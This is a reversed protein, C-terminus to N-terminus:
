PPPSRLFPLQPIRTKLFEMLSRAAVTPYLNPATIMFLTDGWVDVTHEPLVRVLSGDGLEQHVAYFPLVGLGLGALVAHKLFLFSESQVRPLVPIESADDGRALKVVLRTGQQITSTVLDHSMLDGPEGPTGKLQVYSPAACLVWDIRGLERAVYQEPPESTVRLAVDIQAAM